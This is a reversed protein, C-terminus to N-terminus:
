DDPYRPQPPPLTALYDAVARMDRQSMAEAVSQMLGLPSNQRRGSKWAALQRHIYAPHQGALSPFAQEVGWGLAGHCSFCSPLNVSWDGQLALARGREMDGGLSPQANPAAELGAYYAGLAAMQDVDLRSVVYEMNDNRRAGNSYDHLQKTLYGAPLGALRPVTLSGEGAAGHCTACAWPADAATKASEILALISTTDAEFAAKAYTEAAINHPIANKAGPDEQAALPLSAALLVGIAVISRKM